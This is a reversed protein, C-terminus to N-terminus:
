LFLLAPLRTTDVQIHVRGFDEPFYFWQRGLVLGPGAQCSPCLLPVNASPLGQGAALDRHGTVLRGGTLDCLRRARSKQHCKSTKPTRLPDLLCLLFNIESSLGKGGGAGKRVNQFLVQSNQM